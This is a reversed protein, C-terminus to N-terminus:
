TCCDALPSGNPADNSSERKPSRQRVYCHLREKLKQWVPRRDRRVLGLIHGDRIVVVFEGGWPKLYALLPYTTRYLCEVRDAHLGCGIPLDPGIHINM